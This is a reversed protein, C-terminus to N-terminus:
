RVTWPRNLWTRTETSGDPYLNVLVAGDRNTVYVESECDEYAQITTQRIRKQLASAVSIRPKAWQAFIAPKSARSGHHPIQLVTIPQIQTALLQDLGQGEIDATLLLRNAGYEILVVLSNSNDSDSFAVSGPSLVRCVLDTERYLVDGQKVEEPELGAKVLRSRLEAVVESQNLFMETPCIVKSIPFCELLEPVGNYHDIDAHSILLQDILGIGYSWLVQSGREGAITSSPFSGADYVLVHNGPTRVVVLNGHGVDTFTVTLPPGQGNIRDPYAPYPFVYAFCALTLSIAILWRRKMREALIWVAILLWTYWLIIWILGPSALWQHSYPLDHAVKVIWEMSFLSLSCVAGFVTGALPFWSGFVLLGFGSLLALTMPLIVIPNVALGVWASLHFSHVVLPWCAFFVLASCAYAETIKRLCSDWVRVWFTKKQRVLEQLQDREPNQRMQGYLVIAAVALFSLHTGPQLLQAPDIWVVVFMAAALTNMSFARRGLLTAVCYITTLVAARVIPARFDVLWAYFVVLGIVGFLLGKNPIRLLRGIYFCFTALIGLHLGSIALIHITGTGAFERRQQRDLMSRDGLLVASALDVQDPDVHQMVADKFHQKLRDPANWFTRWRHLVKVVKQNKVSVQGQLGSALMWTRFDFQGPNHAPAPLALWGLLEIQDGVEVDWEEFIEENFDKEPQVSGPPEVFVQLRGSTELWQDGVLIQRSRVVLMRSRGTRMADFPNKQAPRPKQGVSAVDCRLRILQAKAPDVYQGVGSRQSVEGYYSRLGGLSLLILLVAVTGVLKGQMSSMQTGWGERGHNLFLMLVGLFACALHFYLGVEWCLHLLAGAVLGIAGVM